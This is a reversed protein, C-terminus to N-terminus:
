VGLSIWYVVVTGSSVTVKWYDGKRVPVTISGKKTSADGYDAHSGRIVTPPTAADSYIVFNAEGNSEQLAIAFGDTAALYVTNTAMTAWNGLGSTKPLNGVDRINGSADNYFTGIQKYFTAGSPASASTSVQVTFTTAASDALAYVYYQTSNAESGTDIDSWTVTTDSANRRLRRNGSADTIMVEGARVYLDAAGKYEVACGKRYNYLLNTLSESYTQAHGVAGIFTEVAEIEDYPQNFLSAVLKTVGNVVQSFTKKSAPFSAAAFATSCTLSLILAVILLRRRM